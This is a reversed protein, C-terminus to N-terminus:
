TGAPLWKKFSGMRAYVWIMTPTIVTIDFYRALKKWSAFDEEGDTLYRVGRCDFSSLIDSIVGPFEDIGSEHVVTRGHLLADWDKRRDSVLVHDCSIGAAELHPIIYDFSIIIPNWGTLQEYLPHTTPSDLAIVLAPEQGERVFHHSSM